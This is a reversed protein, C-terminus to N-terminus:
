NESSPRAYRRALAEPPTGLRYLLLLRANRAVRTLWGERDYRAFSTLATADLERLHGKLARALAVDEMLPLTPIGGVRDLLDRRILLGQDGWPLGLHRARRNGGWEVLRAAIRPSDFALRFHGAIDAHRAMHDEAARLWNGSLRTDAHLILCWPATAAKVGRAIQGGRGPAGEVVTAGLDRAIACTADTSGGDSVVLEAILGETVGPLLSAATAPLTAAANLTPIVVSVPAPM